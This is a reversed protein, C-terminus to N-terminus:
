SVASGDAADNEEVQASGKHAAAAGAHPSLV